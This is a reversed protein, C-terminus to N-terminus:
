GDNNNDDDDDDEEEEEEEEEEEGGEEEGYMGGSGKDFRSLKSEDDYTNEYLFTVTIFNM